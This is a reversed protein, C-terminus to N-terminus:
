QLYGAAIVSLWTNNGLSGLQPLSAPWAWVLSSLACLKQIKLCFITCVQWTLVGPLWMTITDLYCHHRFLLLSHIQCSFIKANSICYDMSYCYVQLKCSLYVFFITAVQNM